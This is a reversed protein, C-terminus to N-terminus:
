KGQKLRARGAESIEWVGYPSDNKLLGEEVMTNRAWKAANRWRIEGNDGSLPEYDVDKLVPKMAKGVHELVPAVKGRGGLRVLADLIPLYYAPEPTRMGKRLKGFDRRRVRTEEDEKPEAVAVMASWDKRLAAVRDRFQTLTESRETAEKVKVMDRDGFAKSGIGNIFDIEAEVEELLIEFASSVNTPNNEIM